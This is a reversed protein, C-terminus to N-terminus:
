ATEPEKKGEFKEIEEHLFSRYKNMNRGIAYM